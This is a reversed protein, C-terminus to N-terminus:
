MAAFARDLCFLLFNGMVIFCIYKDFARIKSKIKCKKRKDPNTSLKGDKYSSYKFM